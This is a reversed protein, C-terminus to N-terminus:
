GSFPMSSTNSPNFRNDANSVSFQMNGAVFEGLENVRGRSISFTRLYSSIDTYSPSTALPDSDFAIELTLTVNSDFAVSM